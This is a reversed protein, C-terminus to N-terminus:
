QLKIKLDALEQEAMLKIEDDNEKDNIIKELDKQDDDFSIYSKADNIIENLDSYEKSKEAFVKNELEGSALEKELNSHKLILDEVNKKPIM